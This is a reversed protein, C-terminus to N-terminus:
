RQLPNINRSVTNFSKQVSTRTRSTKIGQSCNTKPSIADKYADDYYHGRASNLRRINVKSLNKRVHRERTAVKQM